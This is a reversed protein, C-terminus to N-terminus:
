RIIHLNAVMVEGFSRKNEYLYSTSTPRSFVASPLNDVGRM